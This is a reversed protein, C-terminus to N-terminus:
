SLAHEHLEETLSVSSRSFGHDLANRRNAEACPFHLSEFDIQSVFDPAPKKQSTSPQIIFLLRQYHTLDSHFDHKLTHGNNQQRRKSLLMHQRVTLWSRWCRMSGIFNFVIVCTSFVVVREPFVAVQLRITTHSGLRLFNGHRVRPHLNRRRYVLHHNSRCDVQVLDVRRRLLRHRTVFEWKGESEAGEDVSLM